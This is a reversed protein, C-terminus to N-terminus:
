GGVKLKARGLRDFGSLSAEDLNQAFALNVPSLKWADDLPRDKVHVINPRRYYTLKIHKKTGSSM